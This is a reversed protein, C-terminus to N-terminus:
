GAPRQDRVFHPIEQPIPISIEVFGAYVGEKYWPAQFILKRIGNREITYVNEVGSELMAAVKSRAPEPHCALLNTGVLTAGGEQAFTDCSKENMALIIGRRDCVTIASSFEHTWLDETM